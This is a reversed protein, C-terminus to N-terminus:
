LDDLNYHNAPMQQQVKHNDCTFATIHTENKRKKQFYFLAILFIRSAVATAKYNM